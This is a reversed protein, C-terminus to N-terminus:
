LLLRLLQCLLTLRTSLSPHRHPRPHPRPRDKPLLLHLARREAQRQGRSLRLMQTPLHPPAPLLPRSSPLLPAQLKSWHLRNNPHPPTSFPLHTHNLSSTVMIPQPRELTGLLRTFYHFLALDLPNTQLPLPPDLCPPLLSPAFCFSQPSFLFAGMDNCSTLREVLSRRRDLM